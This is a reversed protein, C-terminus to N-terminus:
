CEVALWRFVEAGRQGSYLRSDFHRSAADTELNKLDISRQTGLSAYGGSGDATHSGPGYADMARRTASGAADIAAARQEIASVAPGGGFSSVTGRHANFDRQDPVNTFTPGNPGDIRRPDTIAQGDLAAPTVLAPNVLDGRGAGANSSTATGSAATARPRPPTTAAEIGGGIVAGGGAAAASTKAVGPLAAALGYRPLASAVPLAALVGQLNRTFENNPVLGGEIAQPAVGERSPDIPPAGYKYPQAPNLLARVGAAGAEGGLLGAGFGSLINRGAAAARGVAGRVGSPAASDIAAPSLTRGQNPNYGANNAAGSQRFAQAEASGGAGINPNGPSRIAEREIVDLGPIGPRAAAQPARAATGDANVFIREPVIETVDLGPIGPRAMAQRASRYPALADDIAAM